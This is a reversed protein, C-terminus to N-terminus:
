KVKKGTKLRCLFAVALWQAGTFNLRCAGTDTDTPCAQLSSILQKHTLVGIVKSDKLVTFDNQSGSITLEPGMKLVDDHQFIRSGTWQCITRRKGSARTNIKQSCVAHELQRRWVLTQL